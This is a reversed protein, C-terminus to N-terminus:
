GYEATDAIKKHRMQGVYQSVDLNKDFDVKIAPRTSQLRVFTQYALSFALSFKGPLIAFVNDDINEIHYLYNRKMGKKILETKTGYYLEKVFSEELKPFVEASRSLLRKAIREREELQDVPASEGSGILSYNNGDARTHAIHNITRASFPSILALHRRCVAPYAVLLPSSFLRVDFSSASFEGLNKGTAIILKNTMIPEGDKMMAKILPGKKEFGTYRRETFIKGGQSLFSRVLDSIINSSLMRRDHSLIQWHSHPDLTIESGNLNCKRHIRGHWWRTKAINEPVSQQRWDYNAFKEHRALFKRTLYPWTARMSLRYANERFSLSPDLWFDRDSSSPFIYEIRETSMWGSNNSAVELGGRSNRIVNMNDFNSYYDLVDEIGGVLTRMYQPDPFVSYLSGFHFWEHHEGSSGACLRPSSEVICVRLGSRAFLEASALGAIGGGVILVDFEKSM